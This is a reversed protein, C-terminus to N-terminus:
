PVLTGWFQLTEAAKWLRTDDPVKPGGTLGTPGGTLGGTEGGTDGGTLKDTDAAARCLDIPTVIAAFPLTETLENDDRYAVIRNEIGRGAEAALYIVGAQRTRRGFFDAGAAIKLAMDVALFTEGSGSEGYLVAMSGADLMDKVLYRDGLRPRMAEFRILPFLVPPERYDPATSGGDFAHGNGRPPPM